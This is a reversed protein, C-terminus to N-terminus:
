VFMFFTLSFHMIGNRLRSNRHWHPKELSKFIQFCSSVRRSKFVLLLDLKKVGTSHPYGLLSVFLIFSRVSVLLILALEGTSRLFLIQGCTAPCSIYSQWM